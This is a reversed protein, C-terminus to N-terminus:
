PPGQPHIRAERRARASALRDTRRSSEPTVFRSLGSTDRGPRNRALRKGSLLVTLHTTLLLDSKNAPLSSDNGTPLTNPPPLLTFM